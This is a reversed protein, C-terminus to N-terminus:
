DGEWGAPVTHARLLRGPVGDVVLESPVPAGAHV